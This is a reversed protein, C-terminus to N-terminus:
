YTTGAQSAVDVWDVQALDDKFVTRKLRVFAGSKLLPIDKVVRLTDVMENIPVMQLGGYKM